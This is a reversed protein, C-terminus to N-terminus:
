RGPIRCCRAYVFATIDTATTNQWRCFWGTNDLNPTSKSLTLSPGYADFDCGGGTMTLPPVPVPPSNPDNCLKDATNSSNALVLVAGRQTQCEFSGISVPKSYYGVVDAVVHVNSTTYIKFDDGTGTQSLKITANNGVVSGATFNVTAALPKNADLVDAPFATIYGGTDPTVVTFNVLIAAEVNNLGTLVNLTNCSTAAGGQSAFTTNKGLFGRITGAALIGSKSGANRTDLIRCPTIPTFLLDNSLNGLQAFSNFALVLLVTFILFHKKIFFFQM